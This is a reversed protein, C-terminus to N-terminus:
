RMEAVVICLRVLSDSTHINYAHRKPGLSTGLVVGLHWQQVKTKLVLDQSKPLYVLALHGIHVVDVRPHQPTGGDMRAQKESMVTLPM